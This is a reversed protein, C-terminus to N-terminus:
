SNIYPGHFIINARLYALLQTRLSTVVKLFSPKKAVNVLEQHTYDELTEGRHDYLEEEFVPADWDVAMVARDFPLWVTYRYDATRMSYGMISLQEQAKPTNNDDRSCDWWIPSRVNADPKFKKKFACRWSQSLAFDMALTPLAASSSKATISM